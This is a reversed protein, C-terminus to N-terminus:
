QIFGMGYVQLRFPFYAVTELLSGPDLNHILLAVPEVYGPTAAFLLAPYITIGL